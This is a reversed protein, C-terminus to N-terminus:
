KASDLIGLYSDYASQMISVMEKVQLDELKKIYNHTINPEYKLLNMSSKYNDFFIETDNYFCSNSLLYEPSLNYVSKKNYLGDKSRFDPIGSETSAGAGTFFVINNCSNIMERLKKLNEELM